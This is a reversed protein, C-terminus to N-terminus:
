MKAASVCDGSDKNAKKGVKRRWTGKVQVLSYETIKIKTDNDEQVKGM